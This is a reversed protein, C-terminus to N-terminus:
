PSCQFSGKNERYEYLLFFIDWCIQLRWIRDSMVEFQVENFQAQPYHEGGLLNRPHLPGM